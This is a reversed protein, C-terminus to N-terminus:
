NRVKRRSFAQHLNRELGEHQARAPLAHHDIGADAGIALTLVIHEAIHLRREQRIQRSRAERGPLDVGDEACMQVKVMHTPIRAQDIAVPHGSKWLRAIQEPPGFEIM